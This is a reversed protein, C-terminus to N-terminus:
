RLLDDIQGIIAERRATLDQIRTNLRENELRLNQIENKLVENESKYHDTQKQINEVTVMDPRQNLQMTLDDIKENLKKIEGPLGCSLMIASIFISLYLWGKKM